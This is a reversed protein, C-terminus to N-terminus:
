QRGTAFGARLQTLDANTITQIDGFRATWVGGQGSPIVYDISPGLALWADKSPGDVIAYVKTDKSAQLLALITPLAQVTQITANYIEQQQTDTLAMLFGGFAKVDLSDLTIIPDRYITAHWTESPIDRRLGVLAFEEDRVGIDSCDTDISLGLGHNSSGPPDAASPTYGSDMRGLQYWQNGTGDSTTSALEENGSPDNRGIARDSPDGISRYGQTGTITAGRARINKFATVVRPAMDPSCWMGEVFVLESQPAQGNPYDSVAM